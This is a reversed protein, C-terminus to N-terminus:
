MLLPTSTIDQLIVLEGDDVVNFFINERRWWCNISLLEKTSPMEYAGEGGMNSHHHKKDQTPM